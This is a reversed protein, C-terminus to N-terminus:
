QRKGGFSINNGARGVVEEANPGAFIGKYTEDKLLGTDVTGSFILNNQKSYSIDGPKLTYTGGRMNTLEGSVTGQNFDANLILNGITLKSSDGLIFDEAELAKGRYTAKPSTQLYASNDFSDRSTPVSLYSPSSLLDNDTISDTRTWNAYTSYQQNVFHATAIQVEVDNNLGKKTATVPLQQVEDSVPADNFNIARQLEWKEAQGRPSLHAVKSDSRKGADPGQIIKNDHSNKELYRWQSGDSLFAWRQAEAEQAQRKREAEERHPALEQNLAENQSNLAANEQAKEELQKQAEALQQRATELERQAAQKAEAESNVKATEAELRKASDAVNKQAAALQQRATELERQAAKKAEAESNTKATEAELRKAGDAVNKQAAALQQRATELERQAAQKAQAESNVKATEAELRKASDAVNKQAAALQQRATELERQAAQKAEAESNVKATEAELRKASDAVSKQAVALQQRA